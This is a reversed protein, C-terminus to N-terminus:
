VKLINFDVMANLTAIKAYNKLDKYHIMKKILKNSKIYRQRTIGNLLPEKPTYWMSNTNDLLAINAITSDSLYGNKLIIFEDFNPYKKYLYEFPERNLYKYNYNINLEVLAIKYIPKKSYIYYNYNILGKSNYIVKARYTNSQPIDKLIDKLIFAKNSKFLSKYAFNVRKQHHELNYVKGDQIKITEFLTPKPNYNYELKLLEKGIVEFSDEVINIYM